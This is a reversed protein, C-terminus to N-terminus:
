DELLTRVCELARSDVAVYEDASGKGKGIHILKEEFDIDDRDIAYLESVRIGSCSQSSQRRKPM